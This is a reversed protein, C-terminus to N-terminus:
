HSAITLVFLRSVSSAIEAKSVFVIIRLYDPMKLETVPAKSCGM